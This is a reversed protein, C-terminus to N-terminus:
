NIMSRIYEVLTVRRDRASIGLQFLLPWKLIDIVSQLCCNLKILCSLRCFREIYYVLSLFLSNVRNMQCFPPPSGSELFLLFSLFGLAVSFIKKKLIISFLFTISCCCLSGIFPDRITPDRGWGSEETM